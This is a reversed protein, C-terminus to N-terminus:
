LLGTAAMETLTFHRPSTDLGLYCTKGNYSVCIFTQNWCNACVFIFTLTGAVDTPIFERFERKDVNILPRWLNLRMRKYLLPNRTYRNPILCTLSVGTYCWCAVPRPAENFVHLRSVTYLLSVFLVLGHCIQWVLFSGYNYFSHSTFTLLMRSPVEAYIGTTVMLNALVRAFVDAAIYTILYVGRIFPDCWGKLLLSRQALVAEIM